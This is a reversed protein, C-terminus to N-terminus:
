AGSPLRELTQDFLSAVSSEPSRPDWCVALEKHLARALEWAAASPLGFKKTAKKAERSPPFALLPTNAGERIRSLTANKWEAVLARGASPLIKGDPTQVPEDDPNAPKPPAIVPPPEPESGDVNGYQLSFPEDGWPVPPLDLFQDRAENITMAWADLWPIVGDSLGKLDKRLAPVQSYDPQVILGPGYRPTLKRNMLSAVDEVMPIMVEEWFVRRQESSNARNANDVDGVLIPPVGFVALIESKEFRLLKEFDMDKMDTGLAQIKEGPGMIMVGRANQLGAQFIKIEERIRQRTEKSLESYGSDKDFGVVLSPVGANDFWRANFLQAAYYTDAAQFAAKMPSMGRWPDRPNTYKFFLASNGPINILEGYQPMRM